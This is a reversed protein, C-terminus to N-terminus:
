IETFGFSFCLSRKEAQQSCVSPKSGSETNSLALLDLEVCGEHRCKSQNSALLFPGLSLCWIGASDGNCVWMHCGSDSLSMPNSGQQIQPSEPEGQTQRSFSLLTGPLVLFDNGYPTFKSWHLFLSPSFALLYIAWGEEEVSLESITQVAKRFINQLILLWNHKAIALETISGGDKM